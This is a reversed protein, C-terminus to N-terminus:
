VVTALGYGHFRTISQRYEWEILDKLAHAARGRVAIGLLSAARREGGVSVAHHAMPKLVRRSMAVCRWAAGRLTAQIALAATEAQRLALDATPPLPNGTKGDLHPASDGVVYIEPHDPVRGFPDVRVRGAPGTPSGADALLTPARVDGTWLLTAAEVITGDKLHVTESEVRAIAANVRIDIQFERM